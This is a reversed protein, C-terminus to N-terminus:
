KALRDLLTAWRSTMAELRGRDDPPTPQDDAARLWVIRNEKACVVMAAVQDRRLRLAADVVEDSAEAKIEDGGSQLRVFPQGPAFGVAVVRGVVRRLRPPAKPEEPVAVTHVETRALEREGDSIVYEQLTLGAPLAKLYRRVAANRLRGNSEDGIDAVVRRLAREPLDNFAELQGSSPATMEAVFGIDLSGERLTVLQLRVRQADKARRGGAGGYAPDDLADKLLGSATRQVAHQLYVLAQGFAEIDLRHEDLGPVAGNFRITLVLSMARSPVASSPCTALILAPKQRGRAV